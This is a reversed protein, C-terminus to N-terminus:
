LSTEGVLQDALAEAEDETVGGAAASPPVDAALDGWTDTPEPWPNDHAFRRGLDHAVRQGNMGGAKNAAAVTRALKHTSQALDDPFGLGQLTEVPPVDRGRAVQDLVRFSPHDELRANRTPATFPQAAIADATPEANGHAEDHTQIVHDRYTRALSKDGKDAIGALLKAQQHVASLDARSVGTERLTRKDPVDGDIAANLVNTLTTTSTQRPM